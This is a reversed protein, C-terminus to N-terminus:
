AVGALLVYAVKCAVHATQDVLFGREGTGLWGAAKAYDLAAHLWFEAIAYPPPLLLGVAAAQIFAHAALCVPWPAGAVPRIHSKARALFDGQLPFDALFHLALLAGLTSM